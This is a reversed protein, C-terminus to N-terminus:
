MEVVKKYAIKDNVQLKIFYVGKSSGLDKGSFYYQYNGANQRGNVITSIKEGLINFAELKVDASESLSYTIQTQNSFPNPFINFGVDKDYLEKIDNTVTVVSCASNTCGNGDIGTVCYTATITPNVTIPNGTEGDSWTYANAGSAYLTISQGQTITGSNVTVNPLPNVNVVCTTYNTCGNLDTGTVTYITTQTPCVTICSQMSFTSWTYITAGFACICACQGVCITYGTATVNPKPSVNVVSTASNTCGNVDAGTVTYTLTQTPCVTLCTSNFGTNWTYSNAGSACIWACQGVCVTCGTASVNPKPNVTVVGQATFTSPTNDTVTITYTTNISPNVTISSTTQSTNWSYSYQPTGGSATATLTTTSGNCIDPNNVSVNLQAFVTTIALTLSASLLILKKM